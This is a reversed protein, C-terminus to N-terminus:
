WVSKKYGLLIGFSIMERLKIRSINLNKFVSKARGSLTCMSKMKSKSSQKSGIKVSNLSYSFAKKGKLSSRLMHLHVFKNIKHTLESKQFNDRYRLNKLKLHKM